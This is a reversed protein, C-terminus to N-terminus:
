ATCLQVCFCLCHQVTCCGDFHCKLSLDFLESVMPTITSIRKHCKLTLDFLESDYLNVWLVPHELGLLLLSTFVRESLYLVPLLSDVQGIGFSIASPRIHLEWYVYKLCSIYLTACRSYSTINNKTCLGWHRSIYTCAQKQM